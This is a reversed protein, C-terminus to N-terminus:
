FLPLLLTNHFKEYLQRLYSTHRPAFVIYM